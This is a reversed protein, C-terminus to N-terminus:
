WGSVSLHKGMGAFNVGILNFLLCPRTDGICRYFFFSVFPETGKWQHPTNQFGRMTEKM